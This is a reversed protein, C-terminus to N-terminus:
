THLCWLHSFYHRSAEVIWIHSCVSNRWLIHWLYFNHVRFNAVFKGKSNLHYNQPFLYIHVKNFTIIVSTHKMIVVTWYKNQRWLMQLDALDAFPQHHSRRMLYINAIFNLSCFKNLIVTFKPFCINTLNQIIFEKSFKLYVVESICSWTYLKLCVVWVYLKLCVFESM